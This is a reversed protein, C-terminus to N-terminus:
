GAAQITDIAQTEVVQEVDSSIVQVTVTLGFGIMVLLVLVAFFDPKHNPRQNNM